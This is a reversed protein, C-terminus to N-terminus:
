GISNFDIKKTIVYHLFLFYWDIKITNPLLLLIFIFWNSEMVISKFTYKSWSFSWLIQIRQNTKVGLIEIWNVNQRCENAKFKALRILWQIQM